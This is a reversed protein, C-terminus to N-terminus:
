IYVNNCFMRIKSVNLYSFYLTSWFQAIHASFDNNNCYCHTGHGMLVYFHPSSHTKSNTTVATHDNDCCPHTCPAGPAWQLFSKFGGPSLLNPKWSPSINSPQRGPLCHHVLPYLPWLLPNWASPTAKASSPSLPSHPADQSCSSTIVSVTMILSSCLPRWDPPTQVHRMVFVVPLHPCHTVSHPMEALSEWRKFPKETKQKCLAYASQRM